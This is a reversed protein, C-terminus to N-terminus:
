QPGGWKSRLNGRWKELEDRAMDRGGVGFAIASAVAAAGLILGFALTIIDEAVNMQRLAMAGALVIIAIRAVTALASAQASSSSGITTAALNALYLGLGFIVLGLLVNGLFVTFASVLVALQDFQLLQLAEITAFLMIVVVVLGGVIESMKGSEVDSARALGLRQMLGDFGAARILNSVLGAVVRGIIYAITLVLGAGFMAPLAALLRELMASAPATIAALGLAGLSSILVPILILTYVILGVLSSLSQQGLVKELGVSDGVRDLGVAALLNSVVRQVIRAVFWGLFFIILAAFLNPLFDLVKGVMSRIPGLLGELALADLVAPLFLLFILWYTTDSLMSTLSVKQVADEADPELGSGVREDLRAAGLATRVVWRIGTAVAWAVLLLIGASLIRPAYQFIQDLFSDLPGTVATLKLAQFFGIFVFIMLLWFVARAIAPEVDPVEDKDARVWAAIKNDITTRKLGARVLRSILLALLWGIILIALAAALNPLYSGASAILGDMSEKLGETLNSMMM